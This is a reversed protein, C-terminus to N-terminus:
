LSLNTKSPALSYLVLLTGLALFLGSMTTAVQDTKQQYLSYNLFSEKKRPNPMDYKTDQTAQLGLQTTLVNLKATQNSATPGLNPVVQTAM